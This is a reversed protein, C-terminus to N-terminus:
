TAWLGVSLRETENSILSLCMLVKTLPRVAPWFPFPRLVGLTPSPGRSGAFSRGACALATRSFDLWRCGLKEHSMTPHRTSLGRPDLCRIGFHERCCVELIFIPPPARIGHVSPPILRPASVRHPVATLICVDGGCGHLGPEGRSAQFVSVSRSGLFAPLFVPEGRLGGCPACGGLVRVDAWPSGPQVESKWPQVATCEHQQLGSLDHGKTM